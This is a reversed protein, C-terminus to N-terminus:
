PRQVVIEYDATETTFPTVGSVVLTVPGSLLIEERGSPLELRRISHEHDRIIQVIWTQPLVNDFRVWGRTEWGHSGDEFGERYGIEPVTVDDLLMGPRNVAADTVYEFRVRVVGGVYPTLDVSEQVWTPTEMEGSNNNYGWGLNNGAPNADTGSPTELIQWSEGGDTSVEVYVYDYHEEIAWWAWYKLTASDVGSLDFERTLTTDSSDQRNSWFAYRGSLFGTPVVRVSSSGAFRVVYDGECAIEVYDAAYQHVTARLMDSPCIDIIETPSEVRPASRFNNYGYRGDHWGTDGVYNAVVWDAFVDDAGIPSDRLHDYAGLDMLVADVAWMGNEPHAVLARTAQEGFRDLFYALFLFSAGYHALADPGGGVESWSNLQLDPALAFSHDFGHASHGTLFEALVSAGENMWTDENSDHVWHVMHQLEHALTGPLWSDALGVVDANIYFMEKENSFEHALRSFEDSSAYYGAVSKGLGTTYLIYLHPDGDVGPSWESGFFQRVVPYTNQDFDNVLARVQAEEADLGQESFFFTLPTQYVLRATISFHVDSDMNIVSFELIDGIQYDAPGTGVVIPINPIGRVRMAIERLDSEPVEESRLVDLTNTMSSTPVLLPTSIQGLPTARSDLSSTHTPVLVVSPTALKLSQRKSEPSHVDLERSVEICSVLILAFTSSLFLLGALKLNM